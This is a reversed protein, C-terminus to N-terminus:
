VKNVQSEQVFMILAQHASAKPFRSARLSTSGRRKGYMRSTATVTNATVRPKAKESRGCLRRWPQGGGSGKVLFTTPRSGVNGLWCDNKRVGVVFGVLLNASLIIYVGGERGCALSEWRDSRRRQKRLGNGDDNSAMSPSLALVLAVWVGPAEWPNFSGSLVDKRLQSGGIGGLCYVYHVTNVIAGKPVAEPPWRKVLRTM